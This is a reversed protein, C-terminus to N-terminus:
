VAFFWVSFLKLYVKTLHKKKKCMEVHKWFMTKICETLFQLHTLLESFIPFFMWNM